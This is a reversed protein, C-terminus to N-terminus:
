EQGDRDTTVVSYEAYPWRDSGLRDWRLVLQGTAWLWWSRILGNDRVCRNWARSLAVDFVAADDMTVIQPPPCPPRYPKLETQM